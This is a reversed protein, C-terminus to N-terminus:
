VMRDNSPRRRLSFIIKLFSQLKLTMKVSHPNNYKLKFGEIIDYLSGFNASISLYTEKNKNKRIYIDLNTM